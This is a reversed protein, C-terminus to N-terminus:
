GYGLKKFLERVSIGNESFFKEAEPALFFFVEDQSSMPLGSKLGM